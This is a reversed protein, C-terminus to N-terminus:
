RAELLLGFPRDLEYCGMDVAGGLIRPRGDLDTDAATWGTPDGADRCPSKAKLRYDAGERRFRPNQALNGGAASEDAEPYCSHSLTGGARSVVGAGGDEGWLIANAVTGGALYAAGPTAAPAANGAVTVNAVTPQATSSTLALGAASDANAADLVNGAVLVNRVTAGGNVVLGGACHQLAPASATANTNGVIVCREFLGGDVRAGGAIPYPNIQRIAYNRAITCDRVVGGTQYVGGAYMYDGNIITNGAVVCGRMEGGSVYVGLAARGFSSPYSGGYKLRSHEHHNDRIACDVLLGGNVSVPVQMQLELNGYGTMVCNSVTGASMDLLGGLSWNAVITNATYGTLTVGSLSAGAHSVVFGGGPDQSAVHLVTDAPNGGAVVTVPRDLLAIYTFTNAAGVRQLRDYDGAAIHVTGTLDNDGYVAQVAEFVNSAARGPTDFPWVHAGDPAVYTDTPLITVASALSYPAAGVGSSNTAHLTVDYIGAALGPLSLEYGTAPIVDTGGTSRNAIEWAGSALTADAGELSATLTIACGTWATRRSPTFAAAFGQAAALEYCGIDPWDGSTAGDTPRAAGTLDDAAWNAGSTVADRCRSSRSPAFGGQEDLGARVTADPAAFLPDDPISDGGASAEPYCCFSITAGTHSLNASGSNGYVISGRLTGGSPAALGGTSSLATNDAVTCHEVVAGGSNVFVGGAANASSTAASNGVVLCNRLTAAGYLVVGGALKAKATTSNTNCQVVCREVLGGDARIGAAGNDSNAHGGFNDAVICERLTGSVLHVGNARCQDSNAISIGNREVRCRRLEGGTVYVGNAGRGLLGHHLQRPDRLPDHPGWPRRRAAAHAHQKQHRLIRM